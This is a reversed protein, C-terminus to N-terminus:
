PFEHSFINGRDFKEAEVFILALNFFVIALIFHASGSWTGGATGHRWSIFCNFIFLPAAELAPVLSAWSVLSCLFRVFCQILAM